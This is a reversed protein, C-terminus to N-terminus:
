PGEPCMNCLYTHASPGALGLRQWPGESALGSLTQALLPGCDESSPCVANRVDTWTVGREGPGLFSPILPAM